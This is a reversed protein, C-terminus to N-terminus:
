GNRCLSSQPYDNCVDQTMQIVDSNYATGGGAAQMAEYLIGGDPCAYAIRQVTSLGGLEIPNSSGPFYFGTVAQTCTALTLGSDASAPPSAVQTTTTTTTPSPFPTWGPTGAKTWANLRGKYQTCLDSVAAVIVAISVPGNYERTTPNYTSVVLNSSLSGFGDGQSLGRCTQEGWTSLQQADFENPHASPPSETIALHHVDYVFEPHRDSASAAPYPNPDTTTHKPLVAGIAGLAVIVIVVVAGIIWRKPHRQKPTDLEPKNDFVIGSTKLLNRFNERGYRQKL